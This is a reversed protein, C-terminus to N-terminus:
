QKGCTNDSFIDTSVELRFTRRVRPSSVYEAEELCDLYYNVTGMWYKTTLIDPNDRKLLKCRVHLVDRLKERAWQLDNAAILSYAWQSEFKVTESHEHGLEAKCLNFSREALHLAEDIKGQGLRVVTLDAYQLAFRFRLTTEDGLKNYLSLSKMMWSNAEEFEENDAYFYALDNWARGVNVQDEISATGPPLDQLYKERRKVVRRMRSIAGKRSESSEQGDLISLLNELNALIPNSEDDPVLDLAIKEGLRLVPVALRNLQQEWLFSGADGLLDALEMDSAMPPDSTEFASQLSLVQPMIRKWIPENQPTRSTMDRRPFAERTLRLARKFTQQRKDLDADMKCMLALRLSRHMRLSPGDMIINREVLNRRILSSIAVSLRTITLM